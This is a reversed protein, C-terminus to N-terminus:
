KMKSCINIASIHLELSRTLNKNEALLSNEIYGCLKATGRIHLCHMRLSLEINIHSTLNM